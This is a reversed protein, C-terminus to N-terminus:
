RSRTTLVGHVGAQGAERVGAGEGARDDGIGTCADRGCGRLQRVLRHTGRQVAEVGRPRPQDGDVRQVTRAGEVDEVRARDHSRGARRRHARDDGRVAVGGPGVQPPVEGRLPDGPAPADDGDVVQVHAERLAEGVGACGPRGIGADAADRVPDRVEVGDDRRQQRFAGGGLGCGAGLRGAGRARSPDRVGGASRTRGAGGGMRDHRDPVVPAPDDRERPRGPVLIADGRRDREVRGHVDRLAIGEGRGQLGRQCSRHQRHRRDM